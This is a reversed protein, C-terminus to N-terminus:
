DRERLPQIDQAQLFFTLSPVPLPSMPSPKAKIEKQSSRLSIFPILLSRWLNGDQSLATSSKKEKVQNQLLDCQLHSGKDILIIFYLGDIGSLCM